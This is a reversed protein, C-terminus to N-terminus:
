AQTKRLKRDVSWYTRHGVDYLRIGVEQLRARIYDTVEFRRELRLRGRVELIVKLYPVLGEVDRRRLVGIVNCLESFKALLRLVVAKSVRDINPEVTSVVYKSLSYVVNVARATSFDDNLAEEFETVKDDLFKSIQHDLQAPEDRAEEALQLLHDYAVYFADLVDVVRDLAEWSFDLPKRYHSMAYYLRLVEGEYRSLVESVPVINGLSKSMKEGKVTLYGVHIWYRALREVGFYARAIANENEHHPFILDQGGGHFDFPVGLLESSMVVCELHWGPRGPSWPSSWWPEWAKWAKWLAFDLPGRKGPEPEVRAGAILDSTKQGSLDGYREVKDVSFYVSGDDAVYAFGREVLEEIWRVMKDVYETVRPYSSAPKVNLREMVDFYEEIYKKPLEYWLEIARRGYLEKARELIKDDIDTFNIVIDVEVGLYELYRRLIDFVVYVRAHGVHVSDYPTIGCVYGRARGPQLLTFKELARSATNYIRLPLETSNAYRGRTSM